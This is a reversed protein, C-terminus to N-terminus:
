SGVISRLKERLAIDENLRKEPKWSAEALAMDIFYWEGNVRAFDISWSYSALEGARAIISAYEAIKGLERSVTAVYKSLYDQRLKKLDVRDRFHEELGSWHYYPWIDTVRGKEAIVRVEVNKYFGPLLDTWTDIDLWERIAVARPRPPGFVAVSAMEHCEVILTFLKAFDEKKEVRYVPNRLSYHKCSTQDTRMFVPYGGVEKVCDDLLEILSKIERSAERCAEVDEDLCKFMLDVTRDEIEIIVTRPKPVPLGVVYRWWFLMSNPDLKGM